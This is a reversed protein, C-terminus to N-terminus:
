SQEVVPRARAFREGVDFGDRRGGYLEQTQFAARFGILKDVAKNETVKFEGVSFPTEGFAKFGIGRFGVDPRRGASFYAAEGLRGNTNGGCNPTLPYAM